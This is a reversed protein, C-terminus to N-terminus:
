DSKAEKEQDTEENEDEQDSVDLPRECFPCCGAEHVESEAQNLVGFPPKRVPSGRANEQIPPFEHHVAPDRLIRNCDLESGTCKGSEIVPVIAAYTWSSWIM